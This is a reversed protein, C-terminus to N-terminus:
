TDWEEKNEEEERFSSSLPPYEPPARAMSLRKSLIGIRLGAKDRELPLETVCRAPGLRTPSVEYTCSCRSLAGDDDDPNTEEDFFSFRGDRQGVQRELNRRTAPFSRRYQIARSLRLFKGGGRARVIEESESMELPLSLHFIPRSSSAHRRRFKERASHM